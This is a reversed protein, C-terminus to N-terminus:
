NFCLPLLVRIGRGLGGLKSVLLYRCAFVEAARDSLLLFALLDPQVHLLVLNMSDVLLARGVKCEIGEHRSVHCACSEIVKVQAFVRAM